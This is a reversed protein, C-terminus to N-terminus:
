SLTKLPRSSLSSWWSLGALLSLQAYRPKGPIRTRRSLFSIFARFALIALWSFLSIPHTNVVNHDPLDSTVSDSNGIPIKRMCESACSGAYSLLYLSQNHALHFTKTDWCTDSHNMEGGLTDLCARPGM